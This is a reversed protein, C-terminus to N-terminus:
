FVKLSCFSEKARLLSCAASWFRFKNVKKEIKTPWKREGPIRIRIALGFGPFGQIRIKLVAQFHVTGYWSLWVDRWWRIWGDIEKKNCFLQHPRNPCPPVIFMKRSVPSREWRRAIIMRRRLSVAAGCRKMTYNNRIRARVHWSMKTCIQIASGRVLTYSLFDYLLWSFVTPILTRKVLKAKHDFYGSGSGYRKSISGSFLSIIKIMHSCHEARSGSQIQIM